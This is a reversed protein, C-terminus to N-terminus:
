EPVWGKTQVPFEAVEFFSASLSKESLAIAERLVSYQFSHGHKNLVAEFNKRVQEESNAM